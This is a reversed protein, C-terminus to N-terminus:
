FRAALLNRRRACSFILGSIIPRKCPPVGKGIPIAAFEITVAALCPLRTTLIVGCGQDFPLLHRSCARTGSCLGDACSLRGPNWLCTAMPEEIRPASCRVTVASCQMEGGPAPVHVADAGVVCSAPKSAPGAGQSGCLSMSPRCLLHPGALFSALRSPFQHLLLAGAPM